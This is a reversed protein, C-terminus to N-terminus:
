TEIVEKVCPYDQYILFDIDGAMRIEPNPYLRGYTQGKVVLYDLNNDNFMRVLEKLEKDVLANNRKIKETRGYAKLFERREFKGNLQSIADFVLGYVTQEKAVELLQAFEEQSVEGIFAKNWLAYRLLSFLKDIIIM